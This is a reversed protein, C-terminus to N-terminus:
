SHLDVSMSAAELCSLGYHLNTPHYNKLHLIRSMRTIPDIPYFKTGNSSNCRYGIPYYKDFVVEMTTAPLLYMEGPKTKISPLLIYANGHLLKSAIVECFFDAGAKEPNPKKLLQYLPHTVLRESVGHRNTSVIWPVHSAAQAILNVCRYVIVNKRYAEVGIKTDSFGGQDIATFDLYKNTKHTTTKFIKKLFTAVM